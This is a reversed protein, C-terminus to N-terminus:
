VQSPPTGPRQRFVWRMRFPDAIDFDVMAAEITQVGIWGLMTKGISQFQPALVAALQRDLDDIRFLITLHRRRNSQRLLGEIAADTSSGIKAFELIEPALAADVISFRSGSEVILARDAKVFFEKGSNSRPQGGFRRAIEPKEDALQVRYSLEPPEGLAGLVVFITLAEIEAPQYLCESAIRDALWGAAAPLCRGLEEGRRGTWLEHPRVHIMAQAGPPALKL